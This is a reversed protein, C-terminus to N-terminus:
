VHAAEFAPTRTMTGGLASSFLVIRPSPPFALIAPHAHSHVYLSSASHAKFRPTRTNLLPSAPHAKPAPAITGPPHARTPMTALRPLVNRCIPSSFPARGSTHNLARQSTKHRGSSYNLDPHPQPGNIASFDMHGKSALRRTPLSNAYLHLNTEPVPRTM